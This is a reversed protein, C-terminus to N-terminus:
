LEDATSKGTLSSLDFRFDGDFIASSNLQTYYWERAQSYLEGGFSKLAFAALATMACLCLQVTVLLQRPQRRKKQRQEKQEQYDEYEGDSYGLTEPYEKEAVNQWGEDYVIRSEYDNNELFIM